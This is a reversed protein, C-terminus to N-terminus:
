KSGGELKEPEIGDARMQTLYKEPDEMFTGDCGGCCFYIRMGNHDVFIDKNIPNGMVPCLAQPKETVLKEPEVGGARMQSLYKEPDEMFTGDCGGCCFYIRMGNYDTFVEKNIEGGMIPCHTQPKMEMPASSQPESPMSMMSPKARIQLEADLKFAGRTVVREGEELGSEVIYYDGLRMGLEVERGEYTPKEQDPIEVYVVARRGTKLAASVPILLPAGSSEDAVYGLSEAAVLPMGCVDCPGPEDKVVEPHMPSIWKGALDPNLVRGGDAVQPRAVARVFMGPKLQGEANEVIVRVKATRTSPNIIPDIFSITGEFSEGPYTETTFEVKSGYRLGNLDSEYADLQVWVRSLDAITFIRTGTEVYMGETANRHIVIGGVPAYITM